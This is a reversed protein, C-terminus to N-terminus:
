TAARLDELESRAADRAARLRELEAEASSVADTAAALRKEAARLAERAAAAKKAAAAKEDAAAARATAPRTKARAARPATAKNRATAKEPAPGIGVGSFFHEKTLRAHQAEDRLGPDLSAANLTQHVRELTQESLDRGNGDVLGRAADRLRGLVDRHRALADRFSAPRAEALADGAAFLERADAPQSRLVQNAAWAAVSPKPLKAVETAEARRGEARLRKVLETREPVFESLPLGHLRDVEHAIM